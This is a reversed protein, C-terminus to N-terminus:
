WVTIKLMNNWFGRSNIESVKKIMESKYNNVLNEDIKQSNLDEQLTKVDMLALLLNKYDGIMEEKREDRNATIAQNVFDTQLNYNKSKITNLALNIKGSYNLETPLNVNLEAIQEPLRKIVINDSPSYYDLSNLRYYNICINSILKSNSSLQNLSSNITNIKEIKQNLVDIDKYYKDFVEEIEYNKISLDTKEYKIKNYPESKKQTILQSIFDCDTTYSIDNLNLVRQNIESNIGLIGNNYYQENIILVNQAKSYYRQFYFDQTFAFFISINLVILMFIWFSLKKLFGINSGSIVLENKKNM